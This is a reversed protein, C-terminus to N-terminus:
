SHLELVDGDCVVHDRGVQQGEFKASGWVRAYKLSAAIDKHVLRAVDQVTDGRFVTFPRGMDPPRGPIKTYIRVIGLGEFLLPGIRDLGEGTKVSISVAPYRVDILEELVDIEEANPNLDSKSAILLTPLRIRFTDDLDDGAADGGAEGADHEGTGAGADLLRQRLGGAWTNVLSIRKGDLRERIAAVNEVCGAMGLDVVLLAAHALQLANPMWPEMFTTSIPPLDVMQFHVDEYLFMGPMPAHTSFPYPGVEAHSGTLRAHLSSKGSNPPGILVVQAAGEPHVTHTPGTRAGGKKRGALEETLQKIRTKIDAQLHDTGKHKPVTRLMEKLCNLREAPQRAKQFAEKAKKFEPTVNTPM